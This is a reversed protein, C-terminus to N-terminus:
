YDLKGKQSSQHCWRNCLDSDLAQQRRTVITKCVVCDDMINNLHQVELYRAYSSFLGVM